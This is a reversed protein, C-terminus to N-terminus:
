SEKGNPTVDIPASAPGVVEELVKAVHALAEADISHTVEHQLKTPARKGARDLIDQATSAAGLQARVNAEMKFLRDMVTREVHFADSAANTIAADLHQASDKISDVFTSEIAMLYRAVRPRLLVQRIAERDTELFRSIVIESMGSARMLAIRREKPELDQWDIGRSM